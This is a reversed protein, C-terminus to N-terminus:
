LKFRKRLISLGFKSLLAPNFAKKKNNLYGFFDCPAAPLNANCVLECVEKMQPDPSGPKATCRKCPTLQNNVLCRKSKVMPNIVCNASCFAKGKADAETQQPTLPQSVIKKNGHKRHHHNRLRLGFHFPRNLRNQHTPLLGSRPSPKSGFLFPRNLRNQNTPLLGSRPSPKSGFLFPRNLRNQHTPLLGSIPSPKSGTQHPPLLGSRPSPKLGTQPPIIAGPKQNQQINRRPIGSGNSGPLLSPNIPKPQLPNALQPTTNLTPNKCNDFKLVGNINSIYNDLLISSQRWQGTMTQSQCSLTKHALLVCGKSSNQYAAGGTQLNGNNNTICSGLDLSTDKLHGRMDKCKGSLISGVLKMAHCTKSYAGKNRSALGLTAFCIIFM